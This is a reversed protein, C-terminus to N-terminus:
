LIQLNEYGVLRCAGWIGASINENEKDMDM